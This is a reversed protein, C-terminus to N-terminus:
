SPAPVEVQSSDRIGGALLGQMRLARMRLAAQLFAEIGDAALRDVIDAAVPLERGLPEDHKGDHLLVEARRVPKVVHDPLHKKGHVCRRPRPM